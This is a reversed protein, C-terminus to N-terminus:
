AAERGHPGGSGLKPSGADIMIARDATTMDGRGAAVAQSAEEIPTRSERKWAEASGANRGRRM